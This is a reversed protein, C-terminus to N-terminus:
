GLPKLNKAVPTRYAVLAPVIGAASALAITALVVAAIADMPMKPEVVLGLRQRLVTSVMLGGASALAVGAAAGILGIVASETVILGFVRPRSCGLVRLVAIQRRRQEMSNYLALMIAIGSSVMVVGAMALFIQDINGIIDFLRKIENSPAAVVFRGDRRLADFVAQYARNDVVRLYVGTILRDRDQLDAVTPVGARAEEALRRDFAHMLWSSELNMFLARDHSSGTPELIGVVRFRFETHEHPAAGASDADGRRPLGHTVIVTDGIRLGTRRAATGGVVIELEREFYRGDALRWPQEPDARFKSFFDASTALVPLGRFSDGLQVPVAWDLGAAVFNDPNSTDTLARFEQWTIPRPPANAYFVGNLVSVLPSSDRSLLLHMNGSGREFAQRSADRMSLLVLMLGVAVAVTIITTVTSFPRATMSRRVITFDTLAM